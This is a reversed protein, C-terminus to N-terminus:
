GPHTRVPGPGAAPPAQQPRAGDSFSINRDEVWELIAAPMGAAPGTYTACQPLSDLFHAGYTRTSVRRDLIVVAGRDTSRRILRGFGQKLRLVAEPLALELFPDKLQESRARFIPDGPPAFPLRAIFVCALAKGPLDLGEWFSNTGCLVAEPLSVFREVLARRSGAGRGQALVEIGEPALHQRLRASAQNLQEMSTFLVLTRGTLRRATEAVVAVLREVFDDEPPAPLDDPLCLLAQELFDFPSPLVLENLRSASLGVRSRFYEFSGNLSLTASTLIISDRDDFIADALLPGVNLPARKLAARGYRGFSAWTVREPDPRSALELLRLMRPRVIAASSDPLDRMASLVADVGGQLGSMGPSGLSEADLRLERGLDNGFTYRCASRLAEFLLRVADQMRTSASAAGGRDRAAAIAILGLLDDERVEETLGKTAAEELHHAEDIVLHRARSRTASENFADALLLAHNVVVVDAEAARRRSRHYFCPASGAMCDAPRCDGWESAVARWIREEQGFLRLEDRDGTTTWGLWVTLKLKFILLEVPDIGELAADAGVLNQGATGVLLQEWRTRSLYHGRGKLLVARLRVGLIRAALPLDKHLLQEQLNITYTSVCVQGRNSAAWALAPLLYALSKGTGTGAEAVLNVKRAFAQAVARCMEQQGERLEWGPESALPGAPGILDALEDPSLSELLPTDVPSKASGVGARHHDSGDVQAPVVTVAAQPVLDRFFTALSHRSGRSVERLAELTTPPLQAALHLLALFLRFTAEADELAHHPRPHKLGVLDCLGGLSYSPAAPCVVRAIEISDFVRRDDVAAGLAEELFAVDYGAGHALLDAEGIFERLRPLVQRLRPAAALEGDSIGTLRRIMPPIRLGPNVLTHYREIVESGRFKVAGIEIVHEVASSLGTAELDLCVVVPFDGALEGDHEAWHSEVKSRPLRAPAPGPARPPAKRSM